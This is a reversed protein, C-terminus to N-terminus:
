NLDKDDAGIGPQGTIVPVPPLKQSGETFEDSIQKLFNYIRLYEARVLYRHLGNFISGSLLYPTGPLLDAQDSDIEAIADVTVADEGEAGIIERDLGASADGTECIRAGPLQVANEPLDVGWNDKWYQVVEALPEPIKRRKTEDTEM